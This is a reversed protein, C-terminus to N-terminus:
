GFFGVRTARRDDGFRIPHIHRLLHSPPEKNDIIIIQRDSYGTAFHEFFANLIEDPVQEV